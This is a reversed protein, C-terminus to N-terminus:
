YSFTVSQYLAELREAAAEWTFQSSVLQRGNAGMRLREARDGILRSVAAVFSDMNGDEIIVGGDCQEVEDFNCERTIVVPLGAGMAETIAMSFGEQFSPLVFIDSDVLAQWKAIGSVQGVLFVSNQLGLERVLGGVQELYGPEGTGAIVLAATPHLGLLKPWSALLRELGKKPHLRSMFFVIPRGPDGLLEANQARWAGRDPLSELMARPVGNGIIVNRTKKLLPSCRVEANNLCHVAAAGRLMASDWLFWALDKAWRRGMKLSAADLMGHPAVCYPVRRRKAVAAAYHGPHQWVGHIHVVNFQRINHVLYGRLSRSPLLSSERDPLFRSVNVGSPSLLTGGRDLCCVSIEHGRSALSETMGCVATAVGGSELRM